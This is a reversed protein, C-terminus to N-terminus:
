GGGVFSVVELVDGDKLVTKDYESKPLIEGNYEVAIRDTRFGNEKLLESLNGGGCATEKGNLIVVCKEGKRMKEFFSCM